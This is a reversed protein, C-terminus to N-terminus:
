IGGPNPLVTFHGLLKGDADFRQVRNNYHDTVLVEDDGNVAIGIPFHFEGPEAGQKGWALLFRVPGPDAARTAPLQALGAALALAGALLVAAAGRRTFAERMPTRRPPPASTRGCGGAM